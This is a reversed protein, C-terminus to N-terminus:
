LRYTAGAAFIWDANGRLDFGFSLPEIAISLRPRVAWDLALGM